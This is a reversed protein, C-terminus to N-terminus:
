QHYTSFKSGNSAGRMSVSIQSHNFVEMSQDIADQLSERDARERERQMEREIAEFYKQGSGWKKRSAEFLRALVREDLPRYSGDANEVRFLLAWGMGIPHQVRPRRVFICWRERFADWTVELDDGLEALKKRFWQPGLRVGPRSPNWYWSISEIPAAM